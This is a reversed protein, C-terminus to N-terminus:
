IAGGYARHLDRREKRSALRASFVYYVDPHGPVPGIVVSVTRGTATTGILQLRGKYTEREVHDSVVVEEVEQSLVDHKAIHDLNWEDWVLRAIYVHREM